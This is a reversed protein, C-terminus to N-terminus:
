ENKVKNEEERVTEWEWIAAWAKRLYSSNPEALHVYVRMAGLAADLDGSQEYCLALGYYANLQRDNLLLAQQFHGQAETAQGKGLLAYALNVKAEPMWSAQKIIVTFAAIALDYHRSQLLQVAEHFMENLSEMQTMPESLSSTREGVRTTPEELYFHLVMGYCVTVAIVLAAVPMRFDPYNKM